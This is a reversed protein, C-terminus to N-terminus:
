KRKKLLVWLLGLVALIVVAVLPWWTPSSSKETETILRPEQESPKKLEPSPKSGPVGSEPKELSESALWPSLPGSGNVAYRGQRPERGNIVHRAYEFKQLYGSSIVKPHAVLAEINRLLASADPGLLNAIELGNGYQRIIEEPTEGQPPIALAKKAVDLGDLMGVSSVGLAWRNLDSGHEADPRWERLIGKDEESLLRHEYLLDAAALAVWPSQDIYDRLQDAFAASSPAFDLLSRAQRSSDTKGFGEGFALDVLKQTEPALIDAWKQIVAKREASPTGWDPSEAAIIEQNIAYALTQIDAALAADEESNRGQDNIQLRIENLLPDPDDWIRTIDQEGLATFSLSFLAMAVTYFKSKM